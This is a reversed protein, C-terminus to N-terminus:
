VRISNLEDFADMLKNRIQVLLRFSMDAKQMSTFVEAQNVDGGTLLQEMQGDASLQMDNVKGVGGVLLESFPNSPTKDISEAGFPGNARQLLRMTKEAHQAMLSESRIQM